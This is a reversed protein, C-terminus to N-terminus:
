PTLEPSNVDDGSGDFDTPPALYLDERYYGLIARRLRGETDPGASGLGKFEIELQLANNLDGERNRIYRREVLRVAMCCSDWQIGAIGELLKPEHTADRYLSYYYRGVLSWSSSLPYLFSLDVQKLLNRRYRYALNAVGQDGILYRTRFSALDERRFKPDWQYSGGITWRDNVNWTSDAVWASNGREVPTECNLPQDQSTCPVTVVRSDDLYRIQGLSVSLKERGDAQRLLRSTLAVTVQNADTQRDAGTYRNDRFLQGWSFTLPQTDFLPIDSQNRYPVRLYFLRPELTQLFSEGGWNTERDFYLGTDVSAIPLARSPSTNGNIAAADDVQYGTYRWALTPTLFWSAGQLPMSVYPKLDVRSGGAQDPDQFRVAEAEVGATFLHGVPQEWDLYARPMRNYPLISRSLTYDSLQHHDASIGATWYRGHGYVGIDSTIEFPTAGNLNNNFDELYRPDSIWNLQTRAQWTDGLNQVAGFRFLGRNDDRRNEPPIGQDIEDQRDRDTLRDNPLFAADLVGHGTDTLYRFEGGVQLGRSTMLRPELTLDYNPALNFYYPQRYDFGNRNSSGITPSLLGSRRRNDIPFPFWPVYLVPVPGVHLVANRAVGTGADTDVDIRQARLEWSRDDPPCTSYTAGYLAGQSGHMEIHEAGGNGRRSILQYRVNQINHTDTNQDGEARDAVMRMGSDQYRVAGQAVYRGTESQYDLNDAGLFQDARRLVVNGHYQPNQYTGLLQDGAIDTPQQARVEPSHQAHLAAVDEPTPTPSAPAQGSTAPAPAPPESLTATASPSPAATAGPPRITPADPFAPVADQIPCLRWDDPRNEAAHAALSMGIFLPLPLLRLTRRVRADTLPFRDSAQRM